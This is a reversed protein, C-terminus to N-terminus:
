FQWYWGQYALYMMFFMTVFFFISLLRQGENIKNKQFDSASMIFGTISLGIYIFILFYNFYQDNGIWFYLYEESVWAQMIASLWFTIFLFLILGSFLNIISTGSTILPRKVIPKFQPTVVPANCEPCSTATEPLLSGCNQCYNNM